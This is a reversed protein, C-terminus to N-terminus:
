NIIFQNASASNHSLFTNHQVALAGNFANVTHDHNFSGLNFTGLAEREPLVEVHQAELEHISLESM